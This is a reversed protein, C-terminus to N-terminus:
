CALPYSKFESIFNSTAIGKAANAVKETKPKRALKSGPMLTAAQAVAYATAPRALPPPAIAKPQDAM